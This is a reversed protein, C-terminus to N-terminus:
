VLNPQTVFLADVLRMGLGERSKEEQVWGERGPHIHPPTAYEKQVATFCSESVL